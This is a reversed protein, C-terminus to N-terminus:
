GKMLDRLLAVYDDVSSEDPTITSLKLQDFITVLNQRLSILTTEQLSSKAKLAEIERKLSTMESTEHAKDLLSDLSSASASNPRQPLAAQKQLLPLVKQVDQVFREQTRLARALMDAPSENVVIGRRNPDKSSSSVVGQTQADGSRKAQPTPALPPPKSSSAGLDSSRLGPVPTKADSKESGSKTEIADTRQQLGDGQKQKKAADVGSEDESDIVAKRKNKDGAAAPKPEDQQQQQQQETKLMKRNEWDKLDGRKTSSVKARESNSSTQRVSTASNSKGNGHYHSTCVLM